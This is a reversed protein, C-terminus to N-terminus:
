IGVLEYRNADQHAEIFERISGNIMWESVMVFQRNAMTAGLLSLVNPHHLLKWTVAEKCFRQVAMILENICTKLSGCRHGVKAIKDCKSTPFVRLVKVAVNRGQHEGM